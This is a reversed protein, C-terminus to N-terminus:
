RMLNQVTSYASRKCGLASDPECSFVYFSLEGALLADLETPLNPWALSDVGPLTSIAWQAVPPGDPVTTAVTSVVITSNTGKAGQWAIQGADAAVSVPPELWQVKGLDRDEGAGDIKFLSSSGDGFYGTVETTVGLEHVQDTGSVKLTFRNAEYRADHSLGVMLARGGDTPRIVRAWVEPPADASPEMSLRFEEPEIVQMSAAPRDEQYLAGDKPKAEVIRWWKEVNYAYPVYGPTPEDQVQAQGVTRRQYIIELPLGEEGAMSWNPGQISPVPLYSTATIHTFSQFTVADQSPVGSVNLFSSPISLAYIPIRLEGGEALLNERTVGVYTQASYGQRWVTVSAAGLEWDLEVAFAGDASTMGSATVIGAQEIIVTAGSLVHDESREIREAVVRLAHSALTNADAVGADTAEAQGGDDSCAPFAILVSALALAHRSNWWASNM